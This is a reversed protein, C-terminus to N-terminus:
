WHCGLISSDKWANKDSSLNADPLRVSAPQKRSFPGNGSLSTGRSDFLRRGAANIAMLRGGALTLDRWLIAWLNRTLFISGLIKQGFGHRWM